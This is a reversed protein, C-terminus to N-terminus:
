NRRRRPFLQEGDNVQSWLFLAVEVRWRVLALRPEASCALSGSLCSTNQYWQTRMCLLSHCRALELWVIDCHNTKKRICTICKTVNALQKFVVLKRCSFYSISISCDFFTEKIIALFNYHCESNRKSSPNWSCCGTSVGLFERIWDM